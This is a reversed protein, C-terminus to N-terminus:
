FPKPLRTDVLFLKNQTHPLLEKLSDGIDLAVSRTLCTAEHQSAGNEMEKAGDAVKPNYVVKEQLFPWTKDRKSSLM